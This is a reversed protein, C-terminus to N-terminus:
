RTVCYSECKTAIQLIHCKLDIVLVSFDNQRFPGQSGKAIDCLSM